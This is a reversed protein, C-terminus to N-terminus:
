ITKTANYTTNRANNVILPRKLAHKDSCCYGNEDHRSSWSKDCVPGCLDHWESGHRRSIMNQSVNVDRKCEKCMFTTKDDNAGFLYSATNGM